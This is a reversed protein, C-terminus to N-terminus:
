RYHYLNKTNNTNPDCKLFINEGPYVGHRIGSRRSKKSCRCMPGDNMEGPENHWLDKHLRYPHRIKKTLEEMTCDDVIDNIDIDSDSSSCCKDKKHHCIKKFQKRPPNKSPTQLERANKGRNILKEQFKECLVKHRNTSIVEKDSIRKYYIEAPSSRIWSTHESM